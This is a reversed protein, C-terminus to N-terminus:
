AGRELQRQLAVIEIQLKLITALLIVERFLTPEGFVVEEEYSRLRNIAVSARQAIENRRQKDSM